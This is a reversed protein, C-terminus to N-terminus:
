STRRCLVGWVLTMCCHASLHLADLVKPSCIRRREKGVELNIVRWYTRHMQEMHVDACDCGMHAHTYGRLTRGRRFRHMRCDLFRDRPHHRRMRPMSDSGYRGCLGTWCTTKQAPGLGVWSGPFSTWDFRCPPYSARVPSTKDSLQRLDSGHSNGHREGTTNTPNLALFAIQCEALGFPCSETDACVLSASVVM